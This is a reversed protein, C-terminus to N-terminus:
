RMEGGRQRWNGCGSPWCDECVDDRGEGIFQVEEGQMGGRVHGRFVDFGLDLFSLPDYTLQTLELMIHSPVLYQRVDGGEAVKRSHSLQYRRTQRQRMARDFVVSACIHLAVVVM